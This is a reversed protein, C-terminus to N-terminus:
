SEVKSSEADAVSQKGALRSLGRRFDELALIGCPILVLSIVTSFVVGFGLSVAMPILFQAQMSREMILPTLGAFTTLSTLLIPRFRAVGAMKAAEFVSHGEATYNNIFDVLVLSDNVVVGALAVLGFMSLITLDMGMIMHGWVAGVLGFPIATMVIAPQVYSRFPIAMLAYIAILAIVFGRRLGSMTERQERGQGEFSLRIGPYKRLLQPFVARRLEQQIENANARAEDVNATVNVARRRDVHRIAADGRDPLVEAVTIFPVETRDPLRIRMRELGARSRRERLPYRVMVKIEDNGRVIRQVEEGYFAQRVQRGLDAMTLGLSEAAPRLRLRLEPKGARYSDSVDMVGPYRALRTKLEEKARNLVEYDPGTIQVNIDDGPSFISSTYRLEVVDPIEGVLERWKRVFEESGVRRDEAPTLEIAVEGMHGASVGPQILGANRQLAALLPQAGLSTLVHRILPEGDRALAKEAEYAAREIRELRAHTTEAPTGQPLTLAAAVFDAEVTPFFTFRIWGAGVMGATLILTTVGVAITAYRWRLALDLVPRYVRDVFSELARAVFGQVRRWVRDFWVRDTEPRSSRHSLHSPLVFLSEVLSFLLTAIVVKPMVSLFKGTIGPVLLLPVFAAVTTLVAFVVPVAVQQAGLIAGELPDAIRQQRAFVNEGIVIADDVVIGLVLIFAFLSVLSIAVGLLPMLLLTGLFSVVMGFMTWFAVRLRLFLSLAVFVLAAGWMGNRILLDRRGRLVEANDQWTTAFIGKPLRHQLEEVYRRVKASIDLVNEDGVRFVQVTVAPKGDFRASQDTEAFGDVVRAVDGVRLVTGDPRTLIPIRAFDEGTYAQGKTRLLIEGSRTRLAGGPLDLSFKRVAAAVDDFALGYRRLDKESVEISIEYPRANVLEVVSIGDLAALEDKVQQGLRKLTREDADGYIAVDIVQRRNTLETVVPKETEEPLTEIADVRSKIDDLVKRADATEYLEATVVSLGEASTSTLRKIGDLGEIQEEIRTTVAREVEEPAAGLYPVSVTIRDLTFEPFVVQKISPISVIGGAVIFIALLNAAVPNRAFWAIAGKM